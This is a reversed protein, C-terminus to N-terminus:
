SHYDRGLAYRAVRLNEPQGLRKAMQTDGPLYDAASVRTGPVLQEPARTQQRAAM